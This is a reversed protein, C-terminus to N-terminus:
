WARKKNKHWFFGSNVESTAMKFIEEAPEKPDRPASSSGMDTRVWGPDVSSVTINRKKLAEALTRTFMNVAAKSIQYAPKYADPEDTISGAGSSMSIIHAGNNIHPLLRETLDALGILNVELTKRLAKTNLPSTDEDLYVGANNILVDIKKKSRALAKAFREISEPDSVDLKYIEFNDRKLSAKGSTSTGIVYWSESLFKEAIAKGIGRSAGTVVLTKM